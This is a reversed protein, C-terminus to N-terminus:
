YVGVSNIWGHFECGEKRPTLVAGVRGVEGLLAPV